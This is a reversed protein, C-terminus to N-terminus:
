KKDIKDILNNIKEIDKQDYGSEVPSDSPQLNKMNENLNLNKKDFNKLLEDDLSKDNVTKNIKDEFEFSKVIAFEINKAIANFFLKVVPDVIKGWLKITNYSKAETLIKPDQIEEKNNLKNGLLFGYMNTYISYICGFIILTKFIAFCVGLSKDIAKPTSERLSKCLGSTSLAIAIFVILFILGRATLDAVIKTKIYSKLFDSLYPALLYSLAFAIIWNSFAFVEKILGRLLATILFILSFILFVLDVINFSSLM